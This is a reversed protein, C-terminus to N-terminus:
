SLRFSLGGSEGAAFGLAARLQAATVGAARLDALPTSAASKSLKAGEADLLLRHHRYRPVPLCLLAQLLRHISTSPLLDRGRVVDTVGQLADDVVVALHYTAPRAKGSLAVDGWDLPTAAAEAALEGEGYEAFALEGTQAAAVAVNLRLAHPEGRALRAAVAPDLPDCCPGRHIPASDPDRAGGARAAIEGRTCFCPYVLGLSQLRGLADAYDPWHESQRRPLTEHGVGLWALDELIGVEFERRCRTPDTDEMRLLLRGGAARACADNLLASFAHGAHLRGNPTPAFRFVPPLPL